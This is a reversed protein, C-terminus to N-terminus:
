YNNDFFNEVRHPTVFDSVVFLFNDLARRTQKVQSSYYNYKFLSQHSSGDQQTHSSIIKLLGNIFCEATQQMIKPPADRGEDKKHKIAESSEYLENKYQFYFNSRSITFNREVKLSKIQVVREASRIAPWLLLYSVCSIM